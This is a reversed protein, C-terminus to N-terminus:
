ASKAQTNLAKAEIFIRKVEPHIARIQSEMRAIAHEIDTANLQDKFEVDLAVLIQYPGFHQTIPRGMTEIANDTLVIKRISHVLEPEAAEGILLAKSEYAMIIAISTLLVGIIISAGGDFYHNNLTHGLYVGLMAVVLGILAAADELIVAFDSPDKSTKIAEWFGKRGRVKNFSKLAFFLAGGEFLIALSLVIYSMTPDGFESPHKLHEIGEYFSMGGGIAFILVAVVLSWFYLEKGHGMPHQEDAPKKSRHIGYLLLMGNGTDVLSHIGESLMASSGSIGAAIFKSIAIATNAAIAAYIPGKSSGAMDISLESHPTQLVISRVHAPRESYDVLSHGVNNSRRFSRLAGGM